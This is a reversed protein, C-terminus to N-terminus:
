SFGAVLCKIASDIHAQVIILAATSLRNTSPKKDSLIKNMGRRIRKSPFLLLLVAKKWISRIKWRLWSKVLVRIRNDSSFFHAWFLGSNLFVYDWGVLIYFLFQDPCFTSTFCWNLSYSSCLPRLNSKAQFHVKEVQETNRQMTCQYFSSHVIVTM